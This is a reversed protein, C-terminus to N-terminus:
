SQSCCDFRVSQAWLYHDLHLKVTLLLKVSIRTAAVRGHSLIVQSLICFFKLSDLFQCIYTEVGAIFEKEELFMCNELNTFISSTLM